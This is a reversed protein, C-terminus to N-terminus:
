PCPFWGTSGVHFQKRVQKPAKPFAKAWWNNEFLMGTMYIDTYICIRFLVSNNTERESRSVGAHYFWQYFRIM